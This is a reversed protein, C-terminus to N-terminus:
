AMCALLEQWLPTSTDGVAVFHPSLLTERANYRLPAGDLGLIM